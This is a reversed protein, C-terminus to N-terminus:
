GPADELRYAVPVGDELRYWARIPQSTALHEALHSPSFETANELQGLRLQYEYGGVRLKFGRIQGLGESDVGVVVGVVPSSPLPPDPTCACTAQAWVLYAFFGVVLLAPVGVLVALLRTVPWSPEGEAAAERRRDM